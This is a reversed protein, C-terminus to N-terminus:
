AAGPNCDSQLGIDEVLEVFQDFRAGERVPAPRDLLRDLLFEVPELVATERALACVRDM